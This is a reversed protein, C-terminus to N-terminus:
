GVMRQMDRALQDCMKKTTCFILVRSNPELSDLIRQLMGRKEMFQDAMVITQKIDKNCQLKDM